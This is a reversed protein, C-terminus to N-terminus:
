KRTSVTRQTWGGSVRGQASFRSATGLVRAQTSVTSPALATKVKIPATIICRRSNRIFVGSPLQFRVHAVFQSRLVFNVVVVDFRIAEGSTQPLTAPNHHQIRVNGLDKLIGAVDVGHEARQKLRHGAGWALRFTGGLM